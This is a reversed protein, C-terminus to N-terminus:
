AFMTLFVFGNIRLIVGNQLLMRQSQELFAQQTAASAVLSSKELARSKQPLCYPIWAMKSTIKWRPNM